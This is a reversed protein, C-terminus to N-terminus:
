SVSFEPLLKVNPEKVIELTGLVDVGIDTEADLGAAAVNVPFIPETKPFGGGVPVKNEELETGAMLLGEAAGATVVGAGGGLKASDLVIRVDDFAASEKNEWLEGDVAERGKPVWLVDINPDVPELLEVEINPPVLTDVVAAGATLAGTEVGLTSVTAFGTGSVLTTVVVRAVVVGILLEGPAELIKPGALLEGVGAETNLWGADGCDTNPPVPVVGPETNPVLGVDVVVLEINPPVTVEVGPKPLAGCACGDAALERNAEALAFMVGPPDINSARLTDGVELGDLINPVAVASVFAEESNPAAFAATGDVIEESNPLALIDVVLAGKPLGALM